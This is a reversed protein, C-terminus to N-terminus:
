WRMIALSPTRARAPGPMPPAPAGRHGIVLPGSPRHPASAAASAVAPTAVSAGAAATALLVSRRRPAPSM